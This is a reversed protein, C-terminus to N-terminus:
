SYPGNDYNTNWGWGLRFGPNWQPKPQLLSTSTSTALDSNIELGQMPNTQQFASIFGQNEARWWLFDLELAGGNENSCARPFGNGYRASSKKEKTTVSIEPLTSEDAGLGIGLVLTTGM